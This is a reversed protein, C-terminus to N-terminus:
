PIFKWIGKDIEQRPNMLYIENNAKFNTIGYKNGYDKIPSWTNKQIDYIWSNEKEKPSKGDILYGFENLQFGNWTHESTKGPFEQKKTWKGWYGNELSLEWFDTYTWDTSNARGLGIFLKSEYTFWVMDYIGKGPYGEGEIMRTWNMKIPDYIWIMLQNDMVYVFQNYIFTPPNYNITSPLASLREWTDNKGDYLWFEMSDNEGSTTNILFYGKEDSDYVGAYIMPSNGPINGRREWVNQQIDYRWFENKWETKIVIHYDGLIEEYIGGWFYFYHNSSFGSHYGFTKGPYASNPILSWLEKKNEDTTFSLINGKVRNGFTDEVYGQYYYITSPALEKVTASQTTGGSSLITQPSDLDENTDFFFGGKSFAFDSSLKFSITASHPEINEATQTIISGSFKEPKDDETSCGIFYLASLFILGQYYKQVKM